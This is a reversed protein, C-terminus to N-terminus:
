NICFTVIDRKLADLYAQNDNHEIEYMFGKHYKLPINGYAQVFVRMWGSYNPTYKDEKPRLGLKIDKKMSPSQYGHLVCAGCNEKELVANGHPYDCRLLRQATLRLQNAEKADWPKAGEAWILMFKKM